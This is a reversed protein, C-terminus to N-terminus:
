PTAVVEAAPPESPPPESPPPEDAPPEASVAAAELLGRFTTALEALEDASASASLFFFNRGGEEDPTCNVRLVDRASHVRFRRQRVGPLDLGERETFMFFSVVPPPPEFPGPAVARAEALPVPVPSAAMAQRLATMVRPSVDELRDDAHVEARLRMPGVFSGIMERAGPRSRNSVASGVVFREAGAVRALAMQLWSLMVVFPMTGLAPVAAVLAEWQDVPIKFYRTRSTPGIATPWRGAATPEERLAAWYTAARDQTAAPVPHDLAYRLYSTETPVPLDPVSKGAYKAYARSIEAAVLTGSEGDVLAEAVFVSLVNTKPHILYLTARLRADEWPSLDRYEAEVSRVAAELGIAKPRDGLQVIQLVGPRFPTVVQVPSGDGPEFRARLMEHASVVDDIARALADVDLRGNLQYVWSMFERSPNFASMLLSSQQTLSTPARTPHDDDQPV